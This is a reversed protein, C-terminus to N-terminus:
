IKMPFEYVFEYCDSRDVLNCYELLNGSNDYVLRKIRVVPLTSHPLDLLVQEETTPFSVILSERCISSDYGHKKLVSYLGKSPDSLEEMLIDQPLNQPLFSNSIAVPINDKWQLTKYFLIPSGLLAIMSTRDELLSDTSELLKLELIEQRGKEGSDSLFGCSRTSRSPPTYVTRRTISSGHTLILGEAVLANVAQQVTVSHTQYKNMIELNTPFVQGPKLKGSLIDQRLENAIQEWKKIKSM